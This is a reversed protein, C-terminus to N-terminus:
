APPKTRQNRLRSLSEPTIGLYSAIQYNKVRQEINPYSKLFDSYREEATMYLNSLIRKQFAVFASELQGRFFTELDPSQQFRLILDSQKVQLLKCDEICEVYLISPEHTYYAIYDSTWWDEVAFQVTHEKGGQDIMFTRLCGEIVFYQYNIEQGPKILLQKRSYNVEKFIKLLNYFDEEGLSIRKEIHRYLPHM